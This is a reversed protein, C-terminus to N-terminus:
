TMPIDNNNSRNGEDDLIRVNKNSRMRTNRKVDRLFEKLIELTNVLRPTTVKTEADKSM